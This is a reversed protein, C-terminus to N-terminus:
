RLEQLHPRCGQGRLGLLRHSCGPPVHPAHRADVLLVDTPLHEQRATGRVGGPHHHPLWVRFRHHPLCDLVPLQLGLVPGHQSLSHPPGTPPQQRVGLVGRSHDPDGGLSQLRQPHCGREAPPLLHSFGGPLGGHQHQQQLQPIYCPVGSGVRLCRRSSLDFSCWSPHSITTHVGDLPWPHWLCSAWSGWLFHSRPCGPHCGGHDRM